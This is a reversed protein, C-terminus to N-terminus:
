ESSRWFVIEKQKFYRNNNRDLLSLHAFYKVSFKKNTTTSSLKWEDLANLYIRVPVVEDKFPTGDIIEYTYLTDSMTVEETGKGSTEKRVLMVEAREIKSQVLYFKLNGRICADNLNLYSNEYRIALLVIKDLGVEANMGKDEGEPPPSPLTVWFEQEKVVSFMTRIITVRVFYRIDYKNGRYSEYEKEFNKFMFPYKVEVNLTGPTAIEKISSVFTTKESSTTSAMEGILEIKIGSHDFPKDPVIVFTGSISDEPQILQICQPTGDSGFKDKPDCITIKNRKRQSPEIIIYIKAPIRIGSTIRYLYNMIPQNKLWDDGPWLWGIPFPPVRLVLHETAFAEFAQIPLM